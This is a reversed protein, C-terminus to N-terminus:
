KEQMALTANKLRCYVNSDGEETYTEFIGTVVVNSDEEPYEDPYVHQGDEWVFELGQSCCAMADKIICYHYYKQTPEYFSAYYTGEIKITKGVYANPNVMFQYVTAYVMDSGMTTLDYDIGDTTEETKNVDWAKETVETMATADTTEVTETVIRKERTKNNGCGAAILFATLILIGAKKSQRM